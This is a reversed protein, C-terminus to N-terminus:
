HADQRDSHLLSPSPDLGIVQLLAPCPGSCTNDKQVDTQHFAGDTWPPVAEGVSLGSSCLGCQVCQEWCGLSVKKGVDEGPRSRM